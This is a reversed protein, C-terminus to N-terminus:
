VYFRQGGTVNRASEKAYTFEFASGDYSISVRM